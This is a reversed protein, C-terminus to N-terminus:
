IAFMCSPWKNIQEPRARRSSENINEEPKEQRNTQLKQIRPLRHHPTRDIHQLWNRKRDDIKKELVRTINLQKAIGTNTKCHLECKFLLIYKKLTAGHM